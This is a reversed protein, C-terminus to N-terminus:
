DDRRPAALPGAEAPVPLDVFDTLRPAATLRGTTLNWFERPRAPRGDFGLFAGHPDAVRKRGTAEAVRTLAESLAAEGRAAPLAIEQRRRCRDNWRRIVAEVLRITEMDRQRLARDLVGDRAVRYFYLAVTARDCSEEQLCWTIAARQDPDTLDGQGVVYHWLDPDPASLARLAAPLSGPEAGRMQQQWLAQTALYADHKRDFVERTAAIAEIEQRVDLVLEPRRFLQALRGAEGPEATLVQRFLYLERVSVEDLAEPDPKACRALVGSLAQGVAREPRTPFVADEPLVPETVALTLEARMQEVTPLGDLAHRPLKRRLLTRRSPGGRARSVRISTVLAYLAGLGGLALGAVSAPLVSVALAPSM